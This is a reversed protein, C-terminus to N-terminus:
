KITREDEEKEKDEDEDILKLAIDVIVFIRRM